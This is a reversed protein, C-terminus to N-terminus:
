EREFDDEIDKEKDDVEKDKSRDPERVFRFMRVEPEDMFQKFHEETMSKIIGTDGEKPDIAYLVGLQDDLLIESGIKKQIEQRLKELQEKQEKTIM